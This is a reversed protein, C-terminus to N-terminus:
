RGPLNWGSLGAASHESHGTVLRSMAERSIRNM